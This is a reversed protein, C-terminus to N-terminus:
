TSEKEVKYRDDVAERSTEFLEAAFMLCCSAHYLHSLKTEPDLDEGNLFAFTHRLSAGLLRSLKIGERWYHDAYKKAGFTLVAGVGNVWISSLLDLRIKEQDHKMGGLGADVAFSTGPPTLSPLTIKFSEESMEHRTEFVGPVVEFKWDDIEPTAYQIEDLCKTELSSEALILTCRNRMIEQEGDGERFQSLRIMFKKVEYRALIPGIKKALRKETIAM